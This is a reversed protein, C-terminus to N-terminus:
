DKIRSNRKTLDKAHAAINDDPLNCKNLPKIASHRVLNYEM